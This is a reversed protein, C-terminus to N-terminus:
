TQVRYIIATQHTAEKMMAQVSKLTKWIAVIEGYLHWYPDGIVRLDSSKVKLESMMTKM